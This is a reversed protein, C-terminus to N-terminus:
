TTLKKIANQWQPADLAVLAEQMMNEIEKLGLNGISGEHSHTVSKEPEFEGREIAMGIQKYADRFPVGSLVLRNTEEVSFLYKYKDQLILDTNIKVKELMFDAMFLCDKLDQIAPFLLEKILQMERHYGTPLNTTLMAIDNPLAQIKNCKGRMLEFVDPNKKHPMISSGTTLDDPFTLFGFDQGMYLCIDMAMKGLTAAISSMALGLTKEAKGRGMMAYVVNYNLEDFGLLKTTMKRNLPFSSGFGAGSGLPNKNVVKQAASLMHVDDVLSEAFAGFWLGFSSPMAVQMHTYGPMLTDEHEDSLKILREFLVQVGNAISDIESRMFLRLDVLVQDNRSRGSHIKKGVDGLEETLMLEVQSHIDEVGDMMEFDGVVISQYIKKLSANIQNLEKKELLGISELMATHALSGQVDYPALDIDFELDRGVTFRDVIESVSTEKQWLKM